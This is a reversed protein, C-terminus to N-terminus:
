GGEVNSVTFTLETPGSEEDTVKIISEDLPQPTGEDLTFALQIGPAVDTDVAPDFVPADNKQRLASLMARKLILLGRTM